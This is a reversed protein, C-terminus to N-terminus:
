YFEMADFCSDLVAYSFGTLAGFAGPVLVGIVLWRESRSRRLLWAFGLGAGLFACPWFVRHCSAELWLSRHGREWDWSLADIHLAIGAALYGLSCVIFAYGDLPRRSLVVTLVCVACLAVFCDIFVQLWM